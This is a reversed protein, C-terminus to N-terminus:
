KVKKENYQQLAWPLLSNKCVYNNLDLQFANEM